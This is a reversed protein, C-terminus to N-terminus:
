FAKGPHFNVVIMNVFPNASPRSLFCLKQGALTYLLFRKFFDMPRSIIVSLVLELLSGSCWVGM